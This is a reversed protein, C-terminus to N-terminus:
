TPNIRAWIYVLVILWKTWMYVLFMSFHKTSLRCLGFGSWQCYSGSHPYLPCLPLCCQLLLVLLFLSSLHLSHGLSILMKTGRLVRSSHLTVCVARLACETLPEYHHLDDVLLFATILLWAAWVTRAVTFLEAHLTFCHTYCPEWQLILSHLVWHESEDLETENSIYLFLWRGPGTHLSSYTIQGTLLCALHLEM